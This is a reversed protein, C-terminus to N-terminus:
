LRGEVAPMYPRSMTAADPVSLTSRTGSFSSSSFASRSEIAADTLRGITPSFPEPVMPCTVAIVLMTFLRYRSSVNVNTSSSPARTSMVVYVLMVNPTRDFVSWVRVGGFTSATLPVVM